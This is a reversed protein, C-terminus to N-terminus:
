TCWTVYAGSIGGARLPCQRIWLYLDQISDRDCNETQGASFKRFTWKTKDEEWMGPGPRRLHGFSPRNENRSMWKTEQFAPGGSKAMYVVVYFYVGCTYRVVLMCTESYRWDLRTEPIFFFYFRLAHFFKFHKQLECTRLILPVGDSKSEEKELYRRRWVRRCCKEFVSLDSFWAFAAPPTLFLVARPSLRERMACMFDEIACSPNRLARAVLVNGGGIGRSDPRVLM